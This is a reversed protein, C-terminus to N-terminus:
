LAVVSLSILGVCVLFAFAYVGVQDHLSGTPGPAGAGGVIAALMHTGFINGYQIGAYIRRRDGLIL